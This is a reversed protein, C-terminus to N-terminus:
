APEEMWYLHEDSLRNDDQQTARRAPHGTVGGRQTARRVTQDVVGGRWTAQRAPQEAAEGRQTAQRTNAQHDLQDAQCAM